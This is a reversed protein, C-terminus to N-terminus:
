QDVPKLMGSVSEEIKWQSWRREKKLVRFIHLITIIFFSMECDLNFINFLVDLTCFTVYVFFLDLSFIIQNFRQM